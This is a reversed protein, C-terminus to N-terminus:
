AGCEAERPPPSEGSSTTATTCPCCPAPARWGTMPWRPWRPRCSCTGPCLVTHPQTNLCRTLMTEKLFRLHSLALLLLAYLNNFRDCRVHEAPLAPDGSDLFVNHSSDTRWEQGKAAAVERRSAAVAEATLFGPCVAVGDGLYRARVGAVLARYAATHPAHLPYRATDVM